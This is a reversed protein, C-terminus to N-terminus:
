KLVYQPLIQLFIWLMLQCTQQDSKQCKILWIHTYLGYKVLLVHAWAALAVQKELMKQFWRNAGNQVNKLSVSFDYFHAFYPLIPRNQALYARFHPM